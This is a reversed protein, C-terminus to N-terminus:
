RAAEVAEDAALRDWRRAIVDPLFVGLTVVVSLVALPISVWAAGDRVLLASASGSVISVLVAVVQAWHPVLCSRDLPARHQPADPTRMPLQAATANTTPALTTM